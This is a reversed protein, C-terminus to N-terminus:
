KKKKKEHLFQQWFHPFALSLGLQKWSSGLFFETDTHFYFITSHVEFLRGLLAGPSPKCGIAHPM